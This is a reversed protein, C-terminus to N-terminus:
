VASVVTADSEPARRNLLTLRSVVVQRPLMAISIAGLGAGTFSFRCTGVHALATEAGAGVAVPVTEPQEAHCTTTGPSSQAEIGAIYPMVDAVKM